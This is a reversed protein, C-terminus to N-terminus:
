AHKTERFRFVLAGVGILLGFGGAMVGWLITQGESSGTDRYQRQSIQELKENVAQFQKDQSKWRNEHEERPVLHGRIIGLEDVLQKHAANYEARQLFLSQQDRLTNRFENVSDFRKESAVSAKDVADKQTKINAESAREQADFRAAYLRDREAIIALLYDRDTVVTVQSPPTPPATSSTLADSAYAQSSLALGLFLFVVVRSAM